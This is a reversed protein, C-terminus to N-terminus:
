GVRIATIAPTSVIYEYGGQSIQTTIIGARVNECMIPAPHGLVTISVNEGNSAALEAARALRLGAIEQRDNEAM